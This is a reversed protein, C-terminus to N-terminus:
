SRMAVICAYILRRFAAFLGCKCACICFGLAYGEYLSFDGDKLVPVLGNPNMKLFESTVGTPPAVHVLEYNVGKVRM